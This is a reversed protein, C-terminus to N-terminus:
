LFPRERRRRKHKRRRRTQHHYCCFLSKINWCCRLSYPFLGYCFRPYKSQYRGALDLALGIPASRDEERRRRRRRENTRENTREMIIPWFGIKQTNKKRSRNQIKFLLNKPL